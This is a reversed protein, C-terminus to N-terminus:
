FDVLHLHRENQETMRKENQRPRRDENTRTNCTTLQTLLPNCWPLKLFSFRIYWRRYINLCRTSFLASMKSLLLSEARHYICRRIYNPCPFVQHALWNGLERGRDQYMMQFSLRICFQWSSLWDQPHFIALFIFCSSSLRPARAKWDMSNSSWGM